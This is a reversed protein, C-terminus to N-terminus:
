YKFWHFGSLKRMGLLMIKSLMFLQKWLHLHNFHILHHAVVYLPDICVTTAALLM